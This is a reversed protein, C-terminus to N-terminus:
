MQNTQDNVYDFLAIVVCATWWCHACLLSYTRREYIFAKTMLCVILWGLWDNSCVTLWNILVGTKCFTLSNWGQTDTWRWTYCITHNILINCACSCLTLWSGKILWSKRCFFLIYWSLDLPIPGAIQTIALSRSLRANGRHHIQNDPAHSCSRVAKTKVFDRSQVIM